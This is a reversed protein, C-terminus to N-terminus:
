KQRRWENLYSKKFTDTKIEISPNEKVFLTYLEILEDQQTGKGKGEKLVSFKSDPDNIYKDFFLFVKGKAANNKAGGVGVWEAGQRGGAPPAAEAQIELLRNLIRKEPLVKEIIEEPTIVEIIEEPNIVNYRYIPLACTQVGTM